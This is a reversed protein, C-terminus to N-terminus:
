ESRGKYYSGAPNIRASYDAIYITGEARDLITGPQLISFAEEMYNTESVCESETVNAYTIISQSVSITVALLLSLLITM